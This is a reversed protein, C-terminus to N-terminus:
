LHPQTQQGGFIGVHNMEEIGSSHSKEGARLMCVGEAQTTWPYESLLNFFLNRLIGAKRRAHVTAIEDTEEEVLKQEIEDPAGACAKNIREMYETGRQQKGEFYEEDEDGGDYNQGHALEQQIVKM